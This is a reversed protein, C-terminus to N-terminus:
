GSEALCYWSQAFAAILSPIADPCESPVRVGELAAYLTYSGGDSQYWYGRGAPDPPIAGLVDRLACGADGPLACLSHVQGTVPYAGERDRYEALAEAVRGLDRRRQEDRSAVTGPVGSQTVYPLLERATLPQQAEPITLDTGTRARGITYPLLGVAGRYRAYYVTRDPFAAFLDRRMTATEQAYVINGDLSPENLWFLHGYCQWFCPEVVVLANDLEAEDIKDLLRRDVDNLGQFRQASEPVMSALVHYRENRGWLWSYLSFAILGAVFLYVVAAGAWARPSARARLWSAGDNLLTAARDVGRATLLFLFPTAEYWYRPGAQIGHGEYLVWIAMACMACALLFWDWPNRTGTVFPLLVFALGVYLPWGNLMLLLFAMDAQMNSAGIGASHRDSFGIARELTSTSGYSPRLADGTFAYNYALFAAALIGAGAVFGALQKSGTWRRGAPAMYALLLAGFPPVLALTTMVRTNLLLGFFVGSLLGFALPRRSSLVLFLLSLQLYLVATNHSLYEAAASIFFPSSAMVAAALLGVRASFLKRGILFVLLVNAAGILPPVLWVAGAKIGLALVLPHGFPYVSAWNGNVVPTFTPFTFMFADVAPPPEATLRGSAFIKAQFLYAVSDPNHALSDAYARHVYLTINFAVVALAVAAYLPWARPIRSPAHRTMDGGIRAHALARRPFPLVMLACTAVFGIVALLLVRPYWALAMAVTSKTSEQRATELLPDTYDITLDNGEGVVFGDDLWWFPLHHFVAASAPDANRISIQGGAVNQYTVDVSYNRWDRGGLRLWVSEPVGPGSFAAGASGEIEWRQEWGDDFLEDVLMEGTDLDRVRVRSIDHPGPLTPISDTRALKLALGGTAGADELTVRHRLKGDVWASFQNGRAEVRVRTTQGGDSWIRAGIFAVNVALAIALSVAVGAPLRSLRSRRTRERWRQVGARM